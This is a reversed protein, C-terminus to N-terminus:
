KSKIKLIKTVLSDIYVTIIISFFIYISIEIIQSRQFSKSKNSLILNICSPNDPKEFCTSGKVLVKLVKMFEEMADEITQVNFDGLLM